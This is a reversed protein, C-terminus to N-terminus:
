QKKSKKMEEEMAELHDYYEEFEELHDKAIEIAIGPDNTHEKEIQVGKGLQKPDFDKVNSEDAIGGPIRDLEKNKSTKSRRAINIAQVLKEGRGYQDWESSDVFKNMDKLVSIAEEYDNDLITVAVVLEKLHALSMGDTDEVWKDLNVKHGELKKKLYMRRSQANPMGILIRKDFRSPRCM